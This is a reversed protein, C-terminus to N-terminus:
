FPQGLTASLNTANITLKPYVTLPYTASATKKAADTVTVATSYNGASTPTGSVTGTSNVSLGPPAAGSFTYPPTGGAASFAADSYSLGAEAPQLAGNITPNSSADAGLHIGASSCCYELALDLRGDGDFDAAAMAVPRSAPPVALDAWPQLTGDGNGRLMGIMNGALLVDAKGDGDADAILPHAGNAAYKVAPRFSGNGQNLLVSVGEASTVALDPFGDGNLDGSALESAGPVSIASAAFGGNGDNLLLVVSDGEILTLDTRGDGNFDMAILNTVASSRVVSYAAFTGDGNGFWIRLQGSVIGALDANGHGNFDGTLLATAGRASGNLALAAAFTGDGNGLLIGEDTVLDTYGDRNFDAAALVERAGPIEIGAAFTGDGNGLFVKRGIALDANGDNNFDAAIARGSTLSAALASAPRFGGTRVIPTVTLPLSAAGEPASAAVVHAGAALSGLTLSAQGNALVATGAFTGDVTLTATDAAPAPSISVTVTVPRGLRVPGPPGSLTVSSAALLPQLLAFGAILLTGVNAM